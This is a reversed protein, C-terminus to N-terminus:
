PRSDFWYKIYFKGEIQTFFHLRGLPPRVSVKPWRYKMKNPFSQHGRGRGKIQRGLLTSFTYGFHLPDFTQGHSTHLAWRGASSCELGGHSPIYFM